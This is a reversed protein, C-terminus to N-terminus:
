PPPPPEAPSEPTAQPVLTHRRLDLPEFFARGFAFLGRQPLWFDGLRTQEPLPAPRGLDRGGLVAHSSAILWLETPNAIFWQGNPLHGQLQLRGARLLKGAMRAMAALVRPRRWMRETMGRALANMARTTASQALDVRWVLDVSPVRIQMRRPAPWSLAIETEVARAIAGGMYRCCSALPPADSFITWEGARDRHWVSTYGAGVSSAAFRRMALLEGSSFPAAMVGYGLYREADGEPLAASRELAAAVEAPEKM